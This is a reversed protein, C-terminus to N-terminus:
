PWCSSCLSLGYFSFFLPLFSNLPFRVTSYIPHVVLNPFSSLTSVFSICHFQFSQTHPRACVCVSTGVYAYACTHAHTPTHTHFSSDVEPKNRLFQGGKTNQKAKTKNNTTTLKAKNKLCLRGPRSHPIPCPQSAM